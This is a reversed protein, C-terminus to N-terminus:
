AQTGLWEYLPTESDATVVHLVDDVLELNRTEREGGGGKLPLSAEIGERTITLTLDAVGEGRVVTEIRAIKPFRSPRPRGIRPRGQSEPSRVHYVEVLRRAKRWFFDEIPQGSYMDYEVYIEAERSEGAGSYAVGLSVRATTPFYKRTMLPRGYRSFEEAEDALLLVDALSGLEDAWAYMFQHQAIAYLITGRILTDSAEDDDLGFEEAPGRLTADGFLGLLKYLVFASLTGHDRKEMSECLRWYSSDDRYLKVVVEDRDSDVEIRPDDAMLELFQKTLYQQEIGLRYGIRDFRQLELFDLVKAVRENIKGLKSLSYGLDHCLATICWIADRRANAEATLDSEKQRAERRYSAWDDDYEVDNYLYWNLDDYTPRMQGRLLFDGLLYVWVSHLTHDRYYPELGYLTEEFLAAADLFGALRANGKSEDDIARLALRVLLKWLETCEKHCAEWNLNEENPGAHQFISQLDAVLSLVRLREVERASEIFSINGEAVEVRFAELLIPVNVQEM